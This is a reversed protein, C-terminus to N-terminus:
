PSIAYSILTLMLAVGFLFGIGAGFCLVDKVGDPIRPTHIPHFHAM